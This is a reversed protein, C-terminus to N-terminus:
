KRDQHQNVLLNDEDQRLCEYTTKVSVATYSELYLFGLLLTLCHMPVIYWSSSIIAFNYVNFSYHTHNYHWMIYYHQM